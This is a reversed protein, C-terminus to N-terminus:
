WYSSPPPPAQQLGWYLLGAVVLVIVLAKWTAVAPALGSRGPASGAVMASILRDKRLFQRYLVVLVHLCVLGLLLDFTVEHVAGMTDRVSGKVAYYLPGNYFVEDTNFLGSVAQVLLLGILALVSWGGLPNHGPTPSEGHRLYGLVRRPGAVFDSFRSHRSGVVGWVLRSALLVILTFGIWEHLEYREQEASWWALGVLLPLSWHFVRTPIDWLPHTSM